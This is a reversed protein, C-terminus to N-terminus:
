ANDGIEIMKSLNDQLPMLDKQYFAEPNRIVTQSQLL